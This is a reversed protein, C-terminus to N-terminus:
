CGKAIFEPFRHGHLFKPVQGWFLFGIKWRISSRSWLQSVLGSLHCVEAWSSFVAESLMAFAAVWSRKTDKKPSQLSLCPAEAGCM